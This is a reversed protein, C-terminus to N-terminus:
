NMRGSKILDAKYQAYEQYTMKNFEAAEREAATLRITNPRTKETNSERSVPAAAPSSRRQTPSAAASLPSELDQNQNNIKLIDEVYRFYDDTDAIYGDNIAWKHADRMKENLRPDTVCRPNKRVWEASRPSLQSAFAEVPDSHVPKKPASQINAKATELQMVKVAHKSMESQIEAAREFDGVALADRYSTKLAVEDRALTEIAMNVQRLNSDEVESQARRAMMEAERMRREADYRARKEEEHQAKLINIAEAVDEKPEKKKKEPTEVVIEPEPTATETVDIIIDEDKKSEIEM